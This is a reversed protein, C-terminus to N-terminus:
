VWHNHKKIMNRIKEAMMTMDEDTEKHAKAPDFDWEWFLPILHLHAHDPVGFGEVAYWIRVCNTAQQLAPAIINKAILMLHTYLTDELHIIHWEERKPVILLHGLHMPHIDLFAYVFEDEYVTYSPIDGQIIRTFLTAM